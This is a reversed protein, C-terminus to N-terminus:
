GSSSAGEMPSSAWEEGPQEAWEHGCVQCVRHMHADETLCLSNAQSGSDALPDHQGVEHFVYTAMIASNCEPCKRNRDFSDM